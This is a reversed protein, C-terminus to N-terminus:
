PVPLIRVNLCKALFTFFPYLSPHVAGAELLLFFLDPQVRLSHDLKRVTLEDASAGGGGCILCCAHTRLFLPTARAIIRQEREDGSRFASFVPVLHLRPSCPRASGLTLRTPLAAEDVLRAKSRVGCDIDTSRQREKERELLILYLINENFVRFYYRWGLM